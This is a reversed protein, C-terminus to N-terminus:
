HAQELIPNSLVSGAFFELLLLLPLQQMTFMQGELVDLLKQLYLYTLEPKVFTWKGAMVKDEHQESRSVLELPLEYGTWEEPKEPM